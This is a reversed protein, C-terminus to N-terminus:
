KSFTKKKNKFTEKLNKDVEEKLLSRATDYIRNAEELSINLTSILENTIKEKSKKSIFFNKELINNIKSVEEKSYNLRQLLEEIFENKNM